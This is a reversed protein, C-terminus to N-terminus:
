EDNGEFFMANLHLGTGVILAKESTSAGDPFFLDVVVADTFIETMLSKPKKLIKGVHEGDLDDAKFIWFPVKCCGKGCCPNGETCPNFCMGGCCTPPHVYYLKKGKDDRIYFAPVCFYCEEKNSGMKEGGSSVFVEQYCCCKCPANACRIPREITVVEAGSTDKVETTFPYISSCCIRLCCNSEQLSHAFQEQGKFYKFETKAECGLLEQLWGRRTQRMTMENAEGLHSKLADSGRDMTQSQM